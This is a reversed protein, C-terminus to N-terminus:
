ATLIAVVIWSQEGGPDAKADLLQQKFVTSGRFQAEYLLRRGAGKPVWAPKNLLWVGRDNDLLKRALSM